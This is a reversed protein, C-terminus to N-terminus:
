ALLTQSKINTKESNSETINSKWMVPKVKASPKIKQFGEVVIREGAKLGESIVWMNNQAADIKVTRLTAINNKDVVFVQAINGNRQVAQQPVAIANQQMVQNVRARVYLGPLLLRDPNPVIARLTIAGTAADVTLDSFLLKGSYPYISGDEMIINIEIEETNSQKIQTERTKNQLKEKRVANQFQLAETASQTINVYMPDLQQITAMPTAIGQGVLAGETVLARGVQGSIPARVTAYGLNLEASKLNAQSVALDAQTQKQVTMANDFEQQSVANTKLLTQFRKVDLQAQEFNAQSKEVAAQASNVSVQFPAPDIKFLIDNAKVESGESFVREIVIGPVRARVEAIRTAELRGPLETTVAMKKEIVTFVSVEIPNPEASKPAAPTKDKECGFINLTLLLVISTSYLYFAKM